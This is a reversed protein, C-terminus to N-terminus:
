PSGPPLVVPASSSGPPPVLTVTTRGDKGVHVVATPTTSATTGPLPTGTVTTQGPVASGPIMEPGSSTSNGSTIGGNASQTTPAALEALGGFATALVVGSMALLAYGNRKARSASDRPPAVETRRGPRSGSQTM